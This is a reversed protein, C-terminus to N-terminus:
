RDTVLIDAAIHRRVARDAARDAFTSRLWILMPALCVFSSIVPAMLAGWLARRSILAGITVCLSVAAWGLHRRFTFATDPSSHDGKPTVVFSMPRRIVAGFLASVYIPTALMSVFMGALGTSGAEEHPSVNLRRLWFYLSLQVLALDLYLMSWSRVDTLHLGTAGTIVYSAALAMGVLWSVAASPYYSLLLGYHLRRRWSLKRFRSLGGDILVEDAGRSWRLQQSFFDTWTAPGEGVAVVDPTYVSKWHNQTAPNVAGHVALSTAMDETISDQFGGIQRWTSIRFAHNTGVFMGCASHNASRQIVSQFLYAQSEAARTLFRDYNGYVQPGCVFAVDPDNFYGLMRECMNPLPVHDPDVSIEVHYRDGHRALWANHNGHKTRAKYPGSSQNWEEVNKRSFHNVGLAECMARVDPDDGEDLLWLDLQGAHRIHRAAALTARVVDLPEKSPVITTTFAIRLGPPPVVPLPDKARWASWSLMLSSVLRLGEILAVGALMLYALVDILLGRGQSRPFHSPQVLWLYFITGLVLNALVLPFIRQRQRDALANRFEVRYDVGVENLPGTLTSFREYDYHSDIPWPSTDDVNAITTVSLVTAGRTTDSAVTTIIPELTNTDGDTRAKDHTVVSDAVLAASPRGSNM